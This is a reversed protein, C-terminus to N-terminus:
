NIVIPGHKVQEILSRETKAAWAREDEETRLAASDLKVHRTELEVLKDAQACAEAFLQPLAATRTRWGGLSTCGLSDLVEQETGM